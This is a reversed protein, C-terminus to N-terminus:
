FLNNIVLFSKGEHRNNKSVDVVKGRKQLFNNLKTYAKKEEKSENGEKKNLNLSIEKLNKLKNYNNHIAEKSIVEDKNFLVEDFNYLLNIIHINMDFNNFLYNIIFCSLHFFKFIGGISAGLEQLKLYRRTYYDVERNIYIWLTAVLGGEGIANFGIDMVKQSIQFTNHEVHDETILGVDTNLNINKFYVEVEKFLDYAIRAYLTSFRSRVPYTFNKPDIYYDKYTLYIYYESNLAEKMVEIPPCIKGIHNGESDTKNKCVYIEYFLFHQEVESYDGMM